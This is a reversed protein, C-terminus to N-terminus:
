ARSPTAWRHSTSGVSRVRSANSSRSPWHTSIAVAASSSEIPMRGNSTIVKLKPSRQRQPPCIRPRLRATLPSGSPTTRSSSPTSRHPRGGGCLGSPHGAPTPRYTRRPVDEPALDENDWGVAAREAAHAVMEADLMGFNRTGMEPPVPRVFRCRVRHVRALRPRPIARGGQPFRATRLTRLSGQVAAPASRSVPPVAERCRGRGQNGLHLPCRADRQGVAWRRALLHAPRVRRPGFAVSQGRLTDSREAGPGDLLRQDRIRRM